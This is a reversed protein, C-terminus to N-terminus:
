PKKAEEKKFVFRILHEEQKGVLGDWTTKVDISFINPYKKLLSKASPKKKNITIKVNPEITYEKKQEKEPTNLYQTLTSSLFLM